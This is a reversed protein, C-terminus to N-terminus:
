LASLAEEVKKQLAAEEASKVQLNKEGKKEAERTRQRVQGLETVLGANFHSRLLVQQQVDDRSSKLTNYLSTSARQAQQLLQVTAPVYEALVHRRQRREERVVAYVSAYPSAQQQAGHHCMGSEAGRKHVADEDAEEKRMEARWRRRERRGRLQALRQEYYLRQEEALQQLFSTYYHAVAEEKSENLAERLDSDVPEAWSMHRLPDFGGGDGAAASASPAAEDAEAEDLLLAVEQHLFMRSSLNRIRNTSSQWACSHGSSRYHEQQHDRRARGCAVHGCILCVWLDEYTGCVECRADNLLEYVSFRCLPCEASGSPLQAYCHLHFSHQCLTTVCAASRLPDVQCIACFEERLCGATTAEPSVPLSGEAARGRQQPDKAYYKTNSSDLRLPTAGAEGGCPNPLHLPTHAQRNFRATHPSPPPAVGKAATMAGRARGAGAMPPTRSGEAATVAAASSAMPSKRHYPAPSSPASLAQDSAPRRLVQSFRSHGGRRNNNGDQQQQQQPPTERLSRRLESARRGASSDHEDVEEGGAEDNEGGEGDRVSYITTVADFLSMVHVETRWRQGQGAAGDASGEEGVVVRAGDGDNQTERMRQQRRAHPALLPAASGMAVGADMQTDAGGDVPSTGADTRGEERAAAVKGEEWTEAFTRRTVTTPQEDSVFEVPATVALAAGEELAAKMWVAQSPCHCKLLICYAHIESVIYGVRVLEVWGATQAQAFSANVSSPASSESSAASPSPSPSHSAAASSLASTQEGLRRSASSRTTAATIGDAPRTTMAATSTTPPPTLELPAQAMATEEISVLRSLTRSLSATIPVTHLLLWCTASAPATSPPLLRLTVTNVADRDLAMTAQLEM